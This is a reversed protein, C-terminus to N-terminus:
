LEANKVKNSARELIRLVEKLDDSAGDIDYHYLAAEVNTKSFNWLDLFYAGIENHSEGKLGLELEAPHYEIEKEESIKLIEKHREPLYVLTIIKGINHLLALSSFEEPLERSKEERYDMIFQKNVKLIDTMISELKKRQWSSISDETMFASTLILGKVSNLGLRTLAEHISSIHKNTYYASNVIQLIKTTISVDEIIIDAIKEIAEDRNVAEEFKRLIEINKPLHPISNVLKVIKDNKILNRIEIIHNIKSLLQENSWPKTLYEFAIGSMIAKFVESQDVQGSLILRYVKPYKDRVQRLLEIGGVVPMRMDSIIIDIDNDKLIELADMASEAFFVQYPYTRMARRISSLIFSEDDVFIIKIDSDEM